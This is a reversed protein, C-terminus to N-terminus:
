IKQLRPRQGYRGSNFFSEDNRENMFLNIVPSVFSLLSDLLENAEVASSSATEFTALSSMTSTFNSPVFATVSFM